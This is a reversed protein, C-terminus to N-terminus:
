SNASYESHLCLDVYSDIYILGECLLGSSLIHRKASGSCVSNINENIICVVALDREQNTM